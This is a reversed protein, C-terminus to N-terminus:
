GVSFLMMNTSMPKMKLLQRNETAKRMNDEAEYFCQCGISTVIYMQVNSTCLKSFIVLYILM